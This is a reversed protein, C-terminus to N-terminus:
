NQNIPKKDPIDSKREPSEVKINSTFVMGKENREEYETRPKEIFEPRYKEDMAVMIKKAMEIDSQSDRSRIKARDLIRRMKEREDYKNKGAKEAQEIIREMKKHEDVENINENPKWIEKKQKTDKKREKKLDSM